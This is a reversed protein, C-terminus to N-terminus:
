GALNKPLLRREAEQLQLYMVVRSGLCPLEPELVFRLVKTKPDLM